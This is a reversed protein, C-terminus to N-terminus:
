SAPRPAKASRKPQPKDPKALTAPVTFPLTLTDAVFSVPLDVALMGVGCAACVSKAALQSGSSPMQPYASFSPAPGNFAEHLHEVGNQADQKVGGYIAHAGPGNWGVCNVVTGCGSLAAAFVAVLCATARRGM